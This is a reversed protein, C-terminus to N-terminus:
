SPELELIADLEVSAGLPLQATGIASRAHAGAEGLVDLFLQSAGNMVLHQETFTPASAVYGGLRLVRAVRSLSGLEARVVRLVNAACLAAGRRAEEVTVQEGLRGTVILGAEGDLPLAGSVYAVNGSVVVPRYLAAPKPVRDLPYGLEELKRERTTM